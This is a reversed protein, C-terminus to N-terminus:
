NITITIVVSHLFYSNSDQIEECLPQHVAWNYRYLNSKQAEKIIDRVFENINHEFWEKDYNVTIVFKESTVSYDILVCRRQDIPLIFSVVDPMLCNCAYVELKSMKGLEVLYPFLDIKGVM